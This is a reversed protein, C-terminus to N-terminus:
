SNFTMSRGAKEKQARPLGKPADLAKAYPNLQKEKKRREKASAFDERPPNLISPASAYDFPVDVAAEDSDDRVNVDAANGQAIERQLRKAKKREARDQARRAKSNLGGDDEISIENSQAAM